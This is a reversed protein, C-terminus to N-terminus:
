ENDQALMSGISEELASIYLKLDKDKRPPMLMPPSSLYQKLSEFAKQHQKNWEFQDEAKLKLLPSFINMKGSCNSIFRRLFNIQGLLRQLEKKSIPTQAAQIAKAKNKDVKIGRPHVLFGLFNGVSVGFACKLPSMKLKHTRMRQLANELDVLHKCKTPSKIVVDDIYVEIFQGIMGHFISNMARQYTVGANKLRFPMVVWEFTGIARPCWFATKPVDEEAIYIQNYGSHGDMFSLIQHKVAADM